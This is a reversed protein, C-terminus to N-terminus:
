MPPVSQFTLEPNKVISLRNIKLRTLNSGVMFLYSSFFNFTMLFIKLTQAVRWCRLASVDIVFKIDIFWSMKFRVKWKGGVFFFSKFLFYVDLCYFNEWFLCFVILCVFSNASNMRPRIWLGFIDLNWNLLLSHQCIEHCFNFCSAYLGICLMKLYVVNFCRM